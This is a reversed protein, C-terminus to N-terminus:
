PRFVLPASVTATGGPKPFKVGAKVVGDICKVLVPDYAHGGPDAEASLGVGAENVLIRVTLKGHLSPNGARAQNYCGLLQPKLAVITPKPDFTPPANIDGVLVSGGAPVPGPAPASATADAPASSTAPPASSEASPSSSPASPVDPAVPTAAPASACSALLLLLLARM